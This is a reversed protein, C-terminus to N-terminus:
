EAEVSFLGETGNSDGFKFSIKEGLSLIGLSFLLLTTCFVGLCLLALVRAALMSVPYSM